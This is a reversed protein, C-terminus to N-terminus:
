AKRAPNPIQSRAVLFFVSRRRPPLARNGRQVARSKDQLSIDLQISESTSSMGPLRAVADSM